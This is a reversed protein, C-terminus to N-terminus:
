IGMAEMVSISFEVVQNQSAENGLEIIAIEKALLKLIYGNEENKDGEQSIWDEHGNNVYLVNLSANYRSRWSGTRDKEYQLNPFKTKPQPPPGPPKEPIIYATKTASKLRGTGADYATVTVATMGLESQAKVKVSRGTRSVLSLKTEDEVDWHYRIDDKVLNGLMDVPEARLTKRKEVQVKVVSPIILVRYLPGTELEKGVSFSVKRSERGGAYEIIIQVNYTGVVPSEDLTLQHVESHRSDHEGLAPPISIMIEEAVLKQEGNPSVVGLTKIIVSKMENPDPNAISCTIAVVEGGDYREKDTLLEAVYPADVATNDVRDQEFPNYGLKKVVKDVASRMRKEHSRRRDEDESERKIRVFKEIDRSVKGLVEVLADERSGSIFGSRDDTIQAEPFDIYGAMPTISWPPMDFGKYHTVREYVIEGNRQISVGAGEHKPYIYIEVDIPGHKTRWEKKILYEGDWVVPEVIVENRRDTVVIEFTDDSVMDRHNQRIFEAIKEVRLERRSRKSLGTIAVDTGSKRFGPKVEDVPDLETKNRKLRTRFTRTISGDNRRSCTIITLATGVAYFSGIGVGFESKPIRHLLDLNKLQRRLEVEGKSTKAYSQGYHRFVANFDPEGSADDIPFGVGDDSIRLIDGMSSRKKTKRDILITIKRAGYTYSNKAAEGIFTFPDKATSQMHRIILADEDAARIKIPKDVGPPNLKQQTLIRGGEDQIAIPNDM